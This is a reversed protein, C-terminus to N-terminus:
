IRGDWRIFLYDEGSLEVGYHKCQEDLLETLPTFLPVRGSSGAKPDKTDDRHRRTQRAISLFGSDKDIDGAQLSRLESIRVGTLLAIKCM